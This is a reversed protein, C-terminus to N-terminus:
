VRSKLGQRTKQSAEHVLLSLCGISLLRACHGRLGCILMIPMIGRSDTCSLGLIFHFKIVHQRFHRIRSLGAREIRASEKKGLRLFM